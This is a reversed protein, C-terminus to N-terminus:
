QNGTIKSPKRGRKPKEVIESVKAAGQIEKQTPPFTLGTQSPTCNILTGHLGGAAGATTVNSTYLVSPPSSYDAANYCNNVAATGNNLLTNSILSNNGFTSSDSSTYNLQQPTLDVSRTIVGEAINDYTKVSTCFNPEICASLDKMLDSVEPTDAPNVSVGGVAGIRHIEEVLEQTTLDDAKAMLDDFAEPEAVFMNPKPKEGKPKLFQTFHKQVEEPKPKNRSYKPSESHANPKLSFNTLIWAAFDEVSANNKSFEVTKKLVISMIDNSTNGLMVPEPTEVEEDPVIITGSQSQYATALRPDKATFWRWATLYSIGQKDAWDKLKM